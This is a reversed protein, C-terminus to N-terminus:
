HHTSVERGLLDQELAAIRVLTEEYEVKARNIVLDRRQRARARLENFEKM